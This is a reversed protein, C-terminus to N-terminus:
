RGIVDKLVGGDCRDQRGDASHSPPIPVAAARSNLFWGSLGARASVAALCKASFRMTLSKAPRSLQDRPPGLPWACFALNNIINADGVPNSGTNDGHFHDGTQYSISVLRCPHCLLVSEPVTPAPLRVMIPGHDFTSQLWRVHFWHKM